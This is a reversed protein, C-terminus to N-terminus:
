NASKTPLKPEPLMTLSKVRVISVESGTKGITNGRIGVYSNLAKSVDVESEPDVYAVVRGTAPNYVAYKSTAATSTKLIGEALYPASNEYAEVAKRAAEYQEQLAKSEAAIAANTETQAKGEKQVAQMKELASVRAETGQKVSAPLDATVLLAKYDKLLTEYDREMLGKRLEKELRGNLENFKAYAGETLSKPPALEITKQTTAADTAGTGEATKGDGGPVGTGTGAPLIEITQAAPLVVTTVTDAGIGTVGAPYKMAPIKYEVGAEAAKVFQAAVFVLAREPPAIKYFKETSGLISLKTGKRAVSLVSYPDRTPYIASGARVNVYDAKVTGSKGDAETEVFEKAIMCYSGNPPLIQYWGQRAGVVQVLDGKSLQGMEYHVTGPGSRVYVKDAQITAVFPQTVALAEATPATAASAAPATTPETVTLAWLPTVLLAWALIFWRTADTRDPLM